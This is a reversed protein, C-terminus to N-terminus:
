GLFDVHAWDTRTLERLMCGEVIIYLRLDRKIRQTSFCPDPHAGVVWESYGISDIDFKKQERSTTIWLQLNTAHPPVRWRPPDPCLCLSPPRRYFLVWDNSGTHFHDFVRLYDGLEYGLRQNTSVCHINPMFRLPDAEIRPTPSPFYILSM